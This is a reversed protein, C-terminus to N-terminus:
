IGKHIGGVSTATILFHLVLGESLASLAVCCLGPRLGWSLYSDSDARCPRCLNKCYKVGQTAREPSM